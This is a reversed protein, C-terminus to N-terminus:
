ISYLGVRFGQLLKVQLARTRDGVLVVADLDLPRSELRSPGPQTAEGVRLLGGRCIAAADVRRQLHQRRAAELMAIALLHNLQRPYPEAM